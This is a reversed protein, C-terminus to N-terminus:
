QETICTTRPKNIIYEVGSGAELMQFVENVQDASVADIKAAYSTTFDKGELHRLPIVRLWYEPAKMQLDYANKLYEKCSALEAGDVAGDSLVSRLAIMDKRNCPGDLKLMVSFREDPYIGRNYSVKIDLGRGELAKRAKRELLMAALETTYHNAATMPMRCSATMYAADVDGEVNYFSWGSVPHYPIDLRRVVNDKVRFGGVYEQLLKRLDDEDMDGVIVLVGDNVRSMLHSLLEQAKAFTDDRLGDDTRFSTYRFGPCMINDLEARADLGSLWKGRLRECRVQYGAEDADHSSNNAVALLAKMMLSANRDRVKGSIVTSFMDVRSEMTMGSLMLLHKFYRGKMGDIWCCDLYDSMCAGEGRELDEVNGFGGNLSLSYYLNRNTPMKKYIVKIGNAFIWLYGGSFPDKRSGRLKTKSFPGPLGLTDSLMVDEMFVEVPLFTSDIDMLASAMESFMETRVKESVDKSRFLDLREKERALPSNYLYADRCLRVFESNDSVSRGAMRELYNLYGTESIAVDDAHAEGMDLAKLVSLVLKNTREADAENVIVELAFREDSFGETRGSHRYSVDAVPINLKRLNRRICRATLEGFEWVTRDYVVAQVTNMYNAPARPADWEFMVSALGKVTDKRCSSVVRSDGDWFYEPLSAPISSDVMLSMHRLKTLISSSNVDGSVIIAQDAPIRDEAVKRMLCILSSDLATESSVIVDELLCVRDNGTYDRKILAFDAMGKSSHNEAVFCTLGDPLVQCKVAPDQPMLPIDQAPLIIAHIMGVLIVVFIRAFGAKM